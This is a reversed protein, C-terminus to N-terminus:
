QDTPWGSVVRGWTGPETLLMRVTCVPAWLMKDEGAGSGEGCQAPGWGRERASLSAWVHSRPTLSAATRRRSGCPASWKYAEEEWGM